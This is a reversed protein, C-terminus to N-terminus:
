RRLGWVVGASSANQYTVALYVGLYLLLLLDSTMIFM